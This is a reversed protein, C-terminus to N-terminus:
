AADDQVDSFCNNRNCFFDVGYGKFHQPRSSFNGLVDQKSIVNKDNGVAKPAPYSLLFPQYPQFVAGNSNRGFRWVSVVTGNALKWKGSKFAM